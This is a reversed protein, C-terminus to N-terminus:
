FILIWSFQFNFILNIMFTTFFTMKLASYQELKYHINEALACYGLIVDLVVFLQLNWRLVTFQFHTFSFFLFQFFSFISLKLSDRKLEKAFWANIQQFMTQIWVLFAQQFTGISYALFIIEFFRRRRLKREIYFYCVNM